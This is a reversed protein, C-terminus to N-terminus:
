QEAFTPGSFIQSDPPQTVTATGCDQIFDNSALQQLLAADYTYSPSAQTITINGGAAIQGDLNMSAQGITIDGGAYFLGKMTGSAGTFSIDDKVYIISNGTISTGSFNLDNGCFMTTDALSTGSITVSGACDIEINSPIGSNTLSLNGGCFIKVYALSSSTITMDGSSYLKLWNSSSGKYTGNSVTLGAASYFQGGNGNVNLSSVTYSVGSSGEIYYPSACSSVTSGNTTVTVTPTVASKAEYHDSYKTNWTPVATGILKSGTVIFNNPYDITYSSAVVDGNIHVTSQSSSIKGGSIMTQTGMQTYGSTKTVPQFNITISGQVTRPTRGDTAVAKVSYSHTDADVTSHTISVSLASPGGTSSDPQPPVYTVADLATFFSTANNSSQVNNMLDTAILRYQEMAANKLAEVGQQAGGDASYYDREYTDDIKNQRANALSLTLIGMGLILVVAIIMVVALLASGSKDSKINRLIKM